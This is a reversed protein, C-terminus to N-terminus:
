MAEGRPLTFNFELGGGERNDVRITGGHVIVANKVIALGLGTGGMQRSRGKDVRYFREFLRSLHAAPVGIGNDAFRFRWTEGDSVASLFITTKEGAYAIANDSLNRFISYLLSADGNIVIDEPLKNDFTMKRETLQLLTENQIKTVIDNISVSEFDHTRTPADDMRNLVSIDQLLSTLREAQAHSRELFQRKTTEPIQPNDLITELYGKISATPTKLEHAINQTLERKLRNQEEKTYELRKYMKIIREAIEGLEDDPFEVLDETDLSENHDAKSAFLRLNTINRGLRSTFRYLVICLIAMMLISFWLYGNDATLLETLSVDYPLATRVILGLKPYYSASYFYPQNLTASQRNISYGSGTQLADEVEQRNLHSPMAAYNKEINDFLIAGDRRIITVRLHPLSHEEVYDNFTEVTAAGKWSITEAMGNNYDQLRTNLVQIKFKRERNRQYLMFAVVFAIFIALVTFFIRDGVSFKRM